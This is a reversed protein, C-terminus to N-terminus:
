ISSDRFHAHRIYGSRRVKRAYLPTKQELIITDPTLTEFTPGGERVGISRMSCPRQSNGHRQQMVEGRIKGEQEIERSPPFRVFIPSSDLLRFFEAQFDLGRVVLSVSVQRDILIRPYTDVVEESEGCPRISAGMDTRRRRALKSGDTRPRGDRGRNKMM